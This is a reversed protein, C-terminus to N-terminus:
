ATRVGFLSLALAVALLSFSVALFLRWFPAHHTRGRLYLDAGILNALSSIPTGCGGANVGYLLATFLVVVTVVITVANPPTSATSPSGGGGGCGSLMATAMLSSSIFMSRM